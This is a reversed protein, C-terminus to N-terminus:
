IVLPKPSKNYLIWVQLKRQVILTSRSFSIKTTAQSSNRTASVDSYRREIAWQNDSSRTTGNHLVHSAFYNALRCTRIISIINRQKPVAPHWTNM